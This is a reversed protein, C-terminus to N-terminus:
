KLIEKLNNVTLNDISLSIETRSYEEFLSKGLDEDLLKYGYYDYEYYNTHGVHLEDQYTIKAYKILDVYGSKIDESYLVEKSFLCYKLWNNEGHLTCILGSKKGSWQRFGYYDDIKITKTVPKLEELYSLKVICITDISFNDYRGSLCSITLESSTNNEGNNSDIISDFIEFEPQITIKDLNLQKEAISNAKVSVFVTGVVVFIVEILRFLPELEGLQHM